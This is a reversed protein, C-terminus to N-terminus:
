CIEFWSVNTPFPRCEGCVESPADTRIEWMEQHRCGGAAARLLAEKGMMGALQPFEECIEIGSVNTPIPRFEGSIESPADTKIEGMDQHPPGGALFINILSKHSKTQPSAAEARLLDALTFGGAGFSLGGIKLFGRRTVGDCFRSAGGLISLM